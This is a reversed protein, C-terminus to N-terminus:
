VVSPQAATVNSEIKLQWAIARGSEGPNGAASVFYMRLLLWADIKSAESFNLNCASSAILSPMSLSLMTIPFILLCSSCFDAMTDLPPRRSVTADRASSPPRISYVEPVVERGTLRRECRGRIKTEPFMTDQGRMSLHVEKM